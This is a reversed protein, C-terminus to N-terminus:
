DPRVPKDPRDVFEVAVGLHAYTAAARRDRTLLPLRASRAALAVLADYIAGGAIPLTALEDTLAYHAEADPFVTAPFNRTLMTLVEDPQRRQPPPLRTLVSFTEFWAHGALGTERNGVADMVAEHGLHDAVCLAVAVSTDLLVSGTL